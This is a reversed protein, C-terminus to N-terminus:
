EDQIKDVEFTLVCNVFSVPHAGTNVDIIDFTLGDRVYTPIGKSNLNYFNAPQNIPILFSGPMNSFDSKILNSNINLIMPDINAPNFGFSGSVFKVTYHGQCGTFIQKRDTLDALTLYIQLLM